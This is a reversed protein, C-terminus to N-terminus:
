EESFGSMKQCYSLFFKLLIRHEDDEDYIFIGLIGSIILLWTSSFLNPLPTPPPQSSHQPYSWSIQDVYIGWCEERGGGVLLIWEWWTLTLTNQRANRPCGRKVKRQSGLAHRTLTNIDKRLMDRDAEM